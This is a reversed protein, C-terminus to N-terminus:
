LDLSYIGALNRYRENFDLGYGVVFKDAICFGAYDPVHDFVVRRAPKDLFACIKLSAPEKLCLYKILHGLTRGSDIIDEVLLCHKGKLPLTLDKNIKIIGSSETKAGYSSIDMFDLEVDVEGGIARSLDTLFFAAGKLVCILTLAGGAYDRTIQAGLEGVREAVTQADFMLSITEGM